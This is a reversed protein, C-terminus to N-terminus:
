KKKKEKKDVSPASFVDSFADTFDVVKPKDKVVVDPVSENLEVVPIIKPKVVVKEVRKNMEAKIREEDERARQEAQAEQERTLQLVRENDASRLDDEEKQKQKKIEMARDLFVKNPVSTKVEEKVKPKFVGLDEDGEDEEDDEPDEELVINEAINQESYVDDEKDEETDDDDDEEEIPNSLAPLDKVADVGKVIMVSVYSGDKLKILPTVPPAIKKGVNGRPEIKWTVGVDQLEGLIMKYLKQYDVNEVEEVTPSVLVPEGGKYNWDTPLNRYIPNELTGMPKGCSYQYVPQESKETYEEKNRENEIRMRNEKPLMALLSEVANSFKAEDGEFAANNCRDIQKLTLFEVNVKQKYESDIPTEEFPTGSM